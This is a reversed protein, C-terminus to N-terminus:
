SCFWANRLFEFTTVFHAAAVLFIRLCDPCSVCPRAVSCLMASAWGLCFGVFNDCSWRWVAFLYRDPRSGVDLPTLCDHGFPEDANTFRRRRIIISFVHDSSLVAARDVVRCCCVSLLTAACGISLQCGSSYPMATATALCRVDFGCLSSWKKLVPPKITLVKQYSTWM